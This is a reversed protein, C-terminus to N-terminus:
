LKLVRVEVRRNQQRAAPTNETSIPKKGGYAKTKIRNREVGMANVMFRKVEQVRNESLRVLSKVSGKDTHGELRIVMNPNQIMIQSLVEVTPISGESLEHKGRNFYINKSLPFIEGKVPIRYLLFDTEMNLDGKTSIVLQQSQYKDASVEIRYSRFKELELNYEGNPHAFMRIGTVGGGPILKYTLKADVPKLTNADLIKGELNILLDDSIKAHVQYSLLSAILLSIIAISYTCVFRIM